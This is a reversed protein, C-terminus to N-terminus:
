SKQVAAALLPRLVRGWIAYGAASPHVGDPEMTGPLFHGDLDLLLTGIDICRWGHRATVPDGGWYHTISDGVLIVEPDISDKCALIQAHRDWWEYCDDEIKPLREVPSHKM